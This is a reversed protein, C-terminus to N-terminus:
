KWFRNVITLVTRDKSERLMFLTETARKLVQAHEVLQTAENKMENAKNRFCAEQFHNVDREVATRALGVAQEALLLLEQFDIKAVEANLDNKGTLM